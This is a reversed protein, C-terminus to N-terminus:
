RSPSFARSNFNGSASALAFGSKMLGGSPNDMSLFGSATQSTPTWHKRSSAKRRLCIAWSKMVPQYIGNGAAPESFDFCVARWSLWLDLYAIRRAPSLTNTNGAMFLLARSARALPLSFVSPVDTPVFQPRLTM